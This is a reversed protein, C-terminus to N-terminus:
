AARKGIWTTLLPWTLMPADRGVLLDIHGLPLTRYQKDQTQSREFAPRVSPPPALDDNKGSVVLLPLNLREFRAAYDREPGGFRKHAAWAFMEVLEALGARDFALRLHEDLVHPELAGVHWGRFPLPYIPSEALRRVRRMVGGIVHIPFGANPVPVGAMGLGRLFLAIAGLSISGRAFHYPSGISAIGAIAGDLQPAAAYSVLGGLSHGVLWVPRGGSLSQVEEVASPLDERVYDDVGRSIRAGLHRSRGHGRLDLNFV